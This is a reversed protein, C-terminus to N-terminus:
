TEYFQKMWWLNSLSFGKIDPYRTEIYRSFDLITSKGWGAEEAKGSIYEGVNWYMDIIENNLAKYIKDKSNVIISVIEQYDSSIANSM